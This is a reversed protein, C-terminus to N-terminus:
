PLTKERRLRYVFVAPRCRPTIQGRPKGRKNTRSRNWPPDSTWGGLCSMRAPTVDSAIVPILRADGELLARESRVTALPEISPVGSVFTAPTSQTDHFINRQKIYLTTINCVYSPMLFFSFMSRALFSLFNIVWNLAFDM